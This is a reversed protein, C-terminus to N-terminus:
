FSVSVSVEINRIEFAPTLILDVVAKNEAPVYTVKFDSALLAGVQQMGRLGSTIATELANRNSLTAGEGIFPQAQLRVMQVADFVIRLTSIRSYDSGMKSYTMGDVWRPARNFDLAIPLVGLDILSQQQTRTPNYRLGRLNFIVKGTPASWSNLQSLAAALTCAGNAYGFVGVRQTTPDDPLPYSVPELETGVVAVYPGNAGFGPVDKGALAPFTLHSAIQAATMTENANTTNVFAKTGLVGMVPHSRNTIDACHDAVRKALSTTVTASNDAYFGLPPENGPTAPVEWETPHGGRGWLAIIDPQVTEAADFAQDLISGSGTTWAATSYLDTQTADSPTAVIYIRAAGGAVLELYARHAGSGYGFSDVVNREDIALYPDFDAYATGGGTISSGAAVTRPAIVLTRPGTPIDTRSLAYFRDRLITTIGPLAM